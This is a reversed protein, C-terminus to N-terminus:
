PEGRVELTLQPLEAADGARSQKRRIDPAQVCDERRGGERGGERGENNLIRVIGNSCRAVRGFVLEIWELRSASGSGRSTDPAAECERVGGEM